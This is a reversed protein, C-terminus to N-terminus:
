GGSSNVVRIGNLVDQLGRNTRQDLIWARVNRKQMFSWFKVICFIAIPLPIFIFLCM